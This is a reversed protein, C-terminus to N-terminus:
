KLSVLRVTKAALPVTPALAVMVILEV